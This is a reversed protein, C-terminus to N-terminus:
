GHKQGMEQEWLSLQGNDTPKENLSMRDKFSFGFHKSFSEIEKLMKERLTVHGSVNSAGSTFTQVLGKRYGLTNIMEESQLYYDVSRSLAHLHILDPKTLKGTDVLQQGFYKYWYVQDKSLNMKVLPAPLKQLIEYLNKNVEITEDGRVVKLNGSM